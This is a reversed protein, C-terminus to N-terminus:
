SVEAQWGRNGKLYLLVENLVILLLMDLSNISFYGPSAISKHSM